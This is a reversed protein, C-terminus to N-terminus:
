EKALKMCEIKRNFSSFKLADNIASTLIYKLHRKKQDETPTRNRLTSPCTEIWLKALKMGEPSGGAAQRMAWSFKLAGWSKALKMGAINGGRASSSLSTSIVSRSPYELKQPKIPSWDKLIVMLELHGKEAAYEMALDFRKANHLKAFELLEEYGHKAAHLLLLNSTCRIGSWFSEIIQNWSICVMLCLIKEVRNLSELIMFQIEPPLNSIINFDVIEPEM